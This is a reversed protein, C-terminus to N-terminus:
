PEQMPLKRFQKGLVGFDGSKSLVNAMVIKDAVVPLQFEGSVLPFLALELLGPSFAFTSDVDKLAHRLLEELLRHSNM